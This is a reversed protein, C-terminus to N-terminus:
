TPDNPKELLLQQIEGSFWPYAIIIQRATLTAVTKTKASPNKHIVHYFGPLESKFIKLTELLKLPKSVVM